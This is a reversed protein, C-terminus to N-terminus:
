LEESFVIKKIKMIPALRNGCTVSSKIYKKAYSLQEDGTAGTTNSLYFPDALSYGYGFQDPRIGKQYTYGAHDVGGYETVRAVCFDHPDSLAPRTTAPKYLYYLAESGQVHSLDRFCVMGDGDFCLAFVDGDVGVNMVRQVAEIWSLRNFNTIQESNLFDKTGTSGYGRIEKQFYKRSIDLVTQGTEYERPALVIPSPKPSYSVSWSRRPKHLKRSRRQGTLGTSMSNGFDVEQSYGWEIDPNALEVRRGAILSGVKLFNENPDPVYGGSLRIRMFRYRHNRDVALGVESNALTSGSTAYYPDDPNVLPFYDPLNSGVRDSIISMNDVSLRDTYNSSDCSFMGIPSTLKLWNVGNDEIKFIARYSSESGRVLHVHIDDYDDGWSDFTSGPLEFNLVLYYNEGDGSKFRGPIFQASKQQVSPKWWDGESKSYSSDHSVITGTWSVTFGSSTPYSGSNRKVWFRYVTGLDQKQLLRHTGFGGSLTLIEGGSQTPLNTITPDDFAAQTMGTGKVFDYYGIDQYSYATVSAPGGTWTANQYDITTNPANVNETFVVYNTLTGSYELYTYKYRVLWQTGGGDTIISSNEVLANYQAETIYGNGSQSSRFVWAYGYISGVNSTTGQLTATVDQSAGVTNPHEFFHVFKNSADIDDALRPDGIAAVPHWKHEDVTVSGENNADSTDGFRNTWHWIYNPRFCVRGFLKRNGSVWRKDASNSGFLNDKDNSMLEYMRAIPGGPAGMWISLPPYTTGVMDEVVDSESHGSPLAFYGLGTDEDDYFDIMIGDTNVGFLCLSEPLFGEFGFDYILDQSPTISLTPKGSRLFDVKTDNSRWGSYVPLSFINESRFLSDDYYSFTDGAEASGLFSLSIDRDVQFPVSSALPLTAPALVGGNYSRHEDFGCKFTTPDVEFFNRYNDGEMIRNVNSMTWSSVSAQSTALFSNAYRFSWVRFVTESHTWQEPSSHTDSSMGFGLPTLTSVVNFTVNDSTDVVFDDMLMPDSQFDFERVMLTLTHAKSSYEANTVPAVGDDWSLSAVIEYIPSKLHGSEFSAGDDTIEIKCLEQNGNRDYIQFGVKTPDSSDRGFGVCLDIGESHVEDYIKTTFHSHALGNFTGSQTASDYVYGGGADISIVGRLVFSCNNTTERTFYEDSNSPNDKRQNHIVDSADISKLVDNRYNPVQFIDHGYFVEDVDPITAITTNNTVLDYHDTFWIDQYQVLPSGSSRSTNTQRWAQSYDQTSTPTIQIDVTTSTLGSVTNLKPYDPRTQFVLASSQIDSHNDSPNDLILKLSTASNKDSVRGTISSDGTKYFKDGPMINEYAPSITFSDSNSIASVPATIEALQIYYYSFSGTGVTGRATVRYKLNSAGVVIISDFDASLVNTNTFIRSTATDVAGSSLLNGTIDAKSSFNFIAGNPVYRLYDGLRFQDGPELEALQTSTLSTYVRRPKLDGNNIFAESRAWTSAAAASSNVSTHLTYTSTSAPGSQGYSAGVIRNLQTGITVFDGVALFNHFDGSAVFTYAGSTISSISGTIGGLTGQHSTGVGGTLELAYGMTFGGDTISVLDSPLATTVRDAGPTIDEIFQGIVDPMLGADYAVQWSNSGFYYHKPNSVLEDYPVGETSDQQYLTKNGLIDICANEWALTTPIRLQAPNLGNSFFVKFANKHSTGSPNNVTLASGKVTQARQWGPYGYSQDAYFEGVASVVSGNWSCTSVSIPGQFRLPGGGFMSDGGHTRYSSWSPQTAGKKWYAPVGGLFLHGLYQHDMNLNTSSEQLAYEQYETYLSSYGALLFTSERHFTPYSRQLRNVVSGLALNVDIINYSPDNCIDDTTSLGAISRHNLVVQFLGQYHSGGVGNLNYSVATILINSEQNLCVSVDLACISRDNGITPMGSLNPHDYPETYQDPDTDCLNKESGWSYGNSSSFVSLTSKAAHTDRHYRYGGEANANPCAIVLIVVGDKTLCTDLSAHRQAISVHGLATSQIEGFQKIKKAEFTRCSDTSVLSYVADEFFVCCVSRGDRLFEASVDLPKAYSNLGKIVDRGGQSNIPTISVIDTEVSVLGSLSDLSEGYRNAGVLKVIYLFGPHYDSYQETVNGVFVTLFCYVDGVSDKALSVGTVHKRQYGSELQIDAIDIEDLNINLPRDITWAGKAKDFVKLRVVSGPGGESSSVLFDQFTWVGPPKRSETYACMLDGNKLPLFDSRAYIRTSSENSELAYSMKDYHCSPSRFQVSSNGDKVLAVLAEDAGGPVIVQGSGGVDSHAVRSAPLEDAGATSKEYQDGISGHASVSLSSGDVRTVDVAAFRSAESKAVGQRTGTQYRSRVTPTADDLVKDKLVLYRKKEYHSENDSV